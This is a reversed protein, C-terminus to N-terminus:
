IIKKLFSFFFVMLSKECKKTACYKRVTKYKKKIIKKVKRINVYSQVIQITRCVKLTKKEKIITFIKALILDNLFLM